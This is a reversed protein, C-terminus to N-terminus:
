KKALKVIALILIIGVVVAGGILYWNPGTTEGSNESQKNKLDEHQDEGESGESQLVRTYGSLPVRVGNESEAEPPDSNFDISALNIKDNKMASLLREAKQRNERTFYLKIKKDKLKSDKLPIGNFSLVEQITSYISNNGQSVIVNIENAGYSRVSEILQCASRYTAPSFANVVKRKRLRYVRATGM